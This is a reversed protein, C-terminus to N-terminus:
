SASTRPSTAWTTAGDPMSSLPFRPAAVAYGSSAWSRFLLDYRAPTPVGNGHSFAILPFPSEASAPPAGDTVESAAEGGAEGVAPYYILTERTRTMMAPEAGHADTARSADVFTERRTGVRFQAAASGDEPEAAGGCGGLVATVLVFGAVVVAPARRRCNM